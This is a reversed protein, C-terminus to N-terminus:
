DKPDTFYAHKLSTFDETIVSLPLGYIHEEASKIAPMLKGRYHWASYNSFNKQIIAKAMDCEQQLFKNKFIQTKVPDSVRM